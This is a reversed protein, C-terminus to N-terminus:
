LIPGVSRRGEGVGCKLFERTNQSRCESTIYTHIYMYVYKQKYIHIYIYGVLYSDKSKTKRFYSKHMKRSHMSRTEELRISKYKLIKLVDPDRRRGSREDLPISALTATMEHSWKWYYGEVGLAPSTSLPQVLFSHVDPQSCVCVTFSKKEYSNGTAMVQRKKPGLLRTVLKDEFVKNNLIV